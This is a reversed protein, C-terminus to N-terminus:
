KTGWNTSIIDWFKQDEYGLRWISIGALKYKNVLDIKTQLTKANEFWVERPIGASDTYTYYPEQYKDSWKVNYGKSSVEKMIESTPISFGGTQGVPWDYGYTAVGLSIQEPKFGQKIATNINQEVWDFPAVPGSTSHTEKFDYTMITVKDLYPDLNAYNFVGGAADSSGVHPVVAMYTVKGMSSMQAHLNKMFATLKDRDVTFDKIATTPFFEFDIDIGDYNNTKVENVLNTMLKDQAPQNLLIADQSPVLNVLPIVKIGNQHAVTIADANIEKKLSGDPSVHYWLPHIENLLNSHAKVSPLSDFQGADNAYYGVVIPRTTAAANPDLPKKSAGSCGSAGVILIMCIFLSLIRKM